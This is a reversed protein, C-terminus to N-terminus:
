QSSEVAAKGRLYLRHEFPALLAYVIICVLWAQLAPVGINLSQLGPVVGATLIGVTSGVIYAITAAWRIAPLEDVGPVKSFDNRIGLIPNLVFFETMMIVTASPMLVCATSVVLHFADPCKTMWMATLAGMIGLALVVRKRKFQRVNEVACVAGYLGSDNVAFLTIILVCAAIWAFGGFAYSNMLATAPGYETVGTCSAMIWGTVPFLVQGIMIAVVIPIMTNALRPKGFRWYDAENGWSGYGVVFASILTVAQAFSQHAPATFATPSCVSSAKVFTILVWAILVPAGIFRAFNAIGGFGFFNNVAMLLGFIAALWMSDIPLPYLGKLGEALFMASLGYWVLDILALKVSLLWTGWRGFVRRTLLCHTQGSIAGLLCGPVTYLLLIVCSVAIGSLVQPLTLGAKYWQFGAFVTPFGTVMTVWLLGLTLASRRESLPVIDASHDQGELAAKISGSKILGIIDM